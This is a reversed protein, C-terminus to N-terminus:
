LHILGRMHSTQMDVPLIKCGSFMKLLSWVSKIWENVESDIERRLTVKALETELNQQLYLVSVDAIVM